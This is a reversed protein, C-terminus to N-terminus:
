SSLCSIFAGTVIYRLSYGDALSPTAYVSGLPSNVFLALEMDNPLFYAVCQEIRRDDSGWLGNKDYLIGGATPIVQDIGFYNDLMYQVTSQDIITNKRRVHNMVNLLEKISLRWGAPGAASALDGSDWGKTSDAPFPYALANQSGATPLFSANNVGAPTFVKDQMYKKYYFITVADWIQDNMAPTSSFSYNKNIDNNVIPMLIRCLTFNMNEYDYSGVGPVGAAVQTKAYVYDWKGTGPGAFGSRHTLLHRFTIKDINNGKSWYEPLYDLIKADYSIGKSTLDKVLGVATLFKSVSALHIRTDENWAKGQDAPTQAWNWNAVHVPNGHQRIQLIYGVVLDSGALIENITLGFKALDLKPIVTFTKTFNYAVELTEDMQETRINKMHAPSIVHARVEAETIEKPLNHLKGNPTGKMIERVNTGNLSVIFIKQWSVLVQRV